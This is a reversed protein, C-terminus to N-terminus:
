SSLFPPLRTDPEVLAQDLERSHQAVEPWDEAAAIARAAAHDGRFAAGAAALARRRGDGPRPPEARAAEDRDDWGDRATALGGAATGAAETAM